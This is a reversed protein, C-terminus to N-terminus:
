TLVEMVTDWDRPRWMYAEVQDGELEQLWLKQEPGLRGTDSKLEAFIVRGKRALTLDPFGKGDAAVPTVWNGRKTMAPRFHAVRWGRLRALDIVQKQWDAEKLTSGM